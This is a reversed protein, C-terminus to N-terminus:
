RPVAYEEIRSLLSLSARKNCPEHSLPKSGSQQKTGAAEVVELNSAM